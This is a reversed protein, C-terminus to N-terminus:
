GAVEYTFYDGEKGGEVVEGYKKLTSLIMLVQATPLHTERAIEPVTKGRTKLREKINRISRNQQKIAQNARSISTARERRLSKLTEKGNQKGDM